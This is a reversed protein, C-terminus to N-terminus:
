EKSLDEALKSEKNKRPSIQHQEWKTSLVAGVSLSGLVFYAGAESLSHDGTVASYIAYVAGSVVAAGSIIEKVM